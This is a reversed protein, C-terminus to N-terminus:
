QASATRRMVHVATAKFSALVAIGERLPLSEVSQRTVVSTLSFGCDVRVKYYFGMPTVSTVIGSFVNRASTLGPNSRDPSPIALTVNEPRIYLSVNEGESFHGVSAVERGAVDVLINECSNSSIVGSLVTGMGVFSAVAENAPRNMVDEAAGIQLIRGKEMVAIRDSLRLAEILDHTVLVGTTGMTKLIAYVDDLLPERSKPDLSAFPEDLFIVEPKTAFARALSTRQAEGGSISRSSRSALHAIGFLDLFEEAAARADSKSFGRLRLGSSVNDAVTADFLLPEQFAMALCRRYSLVTTDTGVKKGRFFIEGVFPKTLFAITQLFTTKGAGNSGVLSVVEGQYIEFSPVDLITSGSRTVAINRAEVIAAVEKM